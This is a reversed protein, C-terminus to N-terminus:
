AAAARRKRTLGVIFTIVVVISGIVHSIVATVALISVVRTFAQKTAEMREDDVVLEQGDYQAMLQQKLSETFEARPTVPQYMHHLQAVLDFLEGEEQEPQGGALLTDTYAFLRQKGNRNNGFM